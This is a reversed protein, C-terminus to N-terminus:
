VKESFYDHALHKDSNIFEGPTMGTLRKFSKSFHAPDYFGTDYTMEKFSKYKRKQLLNIIFHLQRIKIYQIPPIGVIETFRRNFQRDSKHIHECVSTVTINGSSKDILKIASEIYDIPTLAKNKLEAIIALLKKIHSRYNNNESLSKTLKELSAHSIFNCISVTQNVIDLPTKKFLYFFASPTLEILIQKIKGSHLAYIDDETKPGTIQIRSKAYAEQNNVKFKPIDFHNYSLCTFPSPTIKQQYNIEKVSSFVAIKQIYDQLKKEPKIIKIEM